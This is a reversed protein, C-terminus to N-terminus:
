RVIKYYVRATLAYVLLYILAFIAFTAATSLLFLPINYLGFAELIKVIMSFAFCIHVGAATLPLFFVTLVQSRISSRVEAPSMGVKQLIEFRARDDYGETVQKYYMILITAMLFLLGLFIGLFLFAGYMAYCEDANLQRSQISMWEYHNEEGEPKPIAQFREELDPNGYILDCVLDYFAKKEEASGEISLGAYGKVDSRYSAINAFALDCFREATERDPVVIVGSTYDSVRAGQTQPIIKGPCASVRYSEGFLSITDAPYEGGAIYLFVEDQALALDKGLFRGYDELTVVLFHGNIQIQDYDMPATVNGDQYHVALTWYDYWAVSTVEHGEEAAIEQLYGTYSAAAAEGQENFNLSIDYPYMTDIFDEMGAYLTVTTSVTVLVMTSLICINALGVANQKMRHLMSSVSIFHRTQYYYSKNSRLIKLLAISGATFLCYTGIIVLIVAIFFWLMAEIPSKVMIALTYGGALTILGLIALLAKTKPEKQGVQNGRLLEIPKSLRIHWLNYLLILLFIVAFLGCSALIGPVSVSMGLPVPFRVLRMLLMYVLKSLVVGTLVGLAITGVGTFLTEFFLVCAIHRKEMGLINYLGLERRRRKMLFSNTYFLIVLSFIGIIVSGFAMYAGVYQGGFMEGLGENMRIFLVIYFMAVTFVCTLLYPFYLQRNKMINNIALRPYFSMKRM